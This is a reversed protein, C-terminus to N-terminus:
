GDGKSEQARQAREAARSEGIEAVNKLMELPLDFATRTGTAKLAMRSAPTMGLSAAISAQAIRMQRYDHLLRRAEGKVNIVSGARLAAYVQGALYEMEAWTRVAPFDAPELWPLADRVKRALREVKKDRLRYGASARVYLGTSAHKPAALAETDDSM